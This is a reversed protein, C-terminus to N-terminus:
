RGAPSARKILVIAIAVILIGAVALGAYRLDSGGAPGSTITEMTRFGPPLIYRTEERHGMGDDVTFDWKGASEPVFSFRGNRDTEGKQYPEDEDDPSYVEVAAGVVAGGGGSWTCTAVLAPSHWKIKVEIGHRPAFGSLLLLPLLLLPLLLAPLINFPPHLQAPLRFRWQHNM